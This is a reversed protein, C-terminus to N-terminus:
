PKEEPETPPLLARLINHAEWRGECTMHMCLKHRPVIAQVAEELGARRGRTEAEALEQRHEQSDLYYTVGQLRGYAAAEIRAAADIRAFAAAVDHLTICRRAEELWKDADTM